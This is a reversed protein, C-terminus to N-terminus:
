CLHTSSYYTSGVVALMCQNELLAGLCACFSILMVLAGVTILLHAETHDALMDNPGFVENRAEDDCRIWVGLSFISGGTM